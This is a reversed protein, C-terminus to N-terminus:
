RYTPLREGRLEAAKIAERGTWSRAVEAIHISEGPYKACEEEATERKRYSMGRPDVYWVRKSEDWRMLYFRSTGLEDRTTRQVTPM